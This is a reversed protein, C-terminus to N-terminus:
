VGLNDFLHQDVGDPTFISAMGPGNSSGNYFVYAAWVSQIAVVDATHDESFLEHKTLLTPQQVRKANPHDTWVPGSASKARGVAFIGVGILVGVLVWAVYGLKRLM